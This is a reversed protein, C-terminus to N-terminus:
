SRGPGKGGYELRIFITLIVIACALLRIRVRLLVIKSQKAGDM